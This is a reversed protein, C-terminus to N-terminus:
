DLVERDKSESCLVSVPHGIKLWWGFCEERDKSESWLVSVKYGGDMGGGCDNKEIMRSAVSYQFGM